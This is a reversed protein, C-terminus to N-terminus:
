AADSNLKRMEKLTLGLEQLVPHANCTRFFTSDLDYIVDQYNLEILVIGSEEYLKIKDKKRSLYKPDNEYGWLEFMIKFKKGNVDMEM